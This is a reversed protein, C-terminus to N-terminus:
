ITIIGDPNYNIGKCFHNTKGRKPDITFFRVVKNLKEGPIISAQVVYRLINDIIAIGTKCEPKLFTEKPKNTNFRTYSYGELQLCVPLRLLYHLGQLGVEAGENIM